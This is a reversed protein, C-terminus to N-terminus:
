ISLPQDDFELRRSNLNWGDATANGSNTYSLSHNFSGQQVGGKARLNQASGNLWVFYGRDTLIPNTANTAGEYGLNVGGADTEDYSRINVFSYPPPFNSGTYGTTTISANWAALTLGTLPNGVNIWNGYQYPISPM